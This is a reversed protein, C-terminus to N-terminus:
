LFKLHVKLLELNIQNEHRSDDELLECEIAETRWMICKKEHPSGTTWVSQGFIEETRECVFVFGIFCIAHGNKTCAFDILGDIISAAKGSM